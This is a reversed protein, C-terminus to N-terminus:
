IDADLPRAVVGLYDVGGRSGVFSVSGRKDTKDTVRGRKNKQRPYYGAGIMFCKPLVGSSHHMAGATSKGDM